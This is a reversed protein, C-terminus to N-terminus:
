LGRMEEAVSFGAKAGARKDRILAQWKRRRLYNLPRPVFAPDSYEGASVRDRIGQTAAARQEFDLRRWELRAEAWDVDSGSMGAAECAQRFEEFGDENVLVPVHGVPSELPAPQEHAEAGRNPLSPTPPSDAEPETDTDTDPATESVNGCRKEQQKPTGKKAARYRRVRETSSDSVYQRQEWNHPTLRGECEDLLGAKRLGSLTREAEAPSLRLGFAIDEPPPLQGNGLAALCLCNVWRRFLEAPLRQVKPDHLVETYVRFWRM